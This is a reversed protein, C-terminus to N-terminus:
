EGAFTRHLASSIGLSSDSLSLCFSRLLNHFAMFTVLKVTLTRDEGVKDLPSNHFGLKEM